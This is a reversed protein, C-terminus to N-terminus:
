VTSSEARTQTGGKSESEAQQRRRLVFMINGTLLEVESYRSLEARVEPSLYARAGAQERAYEQCIEFHEQFIERYRFWGLENLYTNPVYRRRRLHEWPDSRRPHSMGIEHSYWEVLHGGAISTFPNLRILGLGGPSLWSQMNRCLCILKTEEIHEFVDESFVVDFQRPGFAAETSNSADGVHFRTEDLNWGGGSGNLYQAFRRREGVDFAFHRVISKALREVGNDRLIQVFEAPSGRLVPRDLDIGTADYGMGLLYFMRLPRAGYGIELIRCARFDLASHRAVLMRYEDINGAIASAGGDPAGKGLRMRFHRVWEYSKALLSIERRSSTSRNKM